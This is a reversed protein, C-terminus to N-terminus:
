KTKLTLLLTLLKNVIHKKENGYTNRIKKALRGAEMYKTKYKKYPTTKLYDLFYPIILEELTFNVKSTVNIIAEKFSISTSMYPRECLTYPIRLDYLDNHKRGFYKDSWDPEDIVMHERFISKLIKRFDFYDLHFHSQSAAAEHIKIRLYENCVTITKEGKFTPYGARIDTVFYTRKICDPHNIGKSHLCGCKPHIIIEDDKFM